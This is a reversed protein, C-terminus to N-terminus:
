IKTGDKNLGISTIWDETTAMQKAKSNENDIDLCKLVKREGGFIIKKQTPHFVVAFIRNPEQIKRVITYLANWVM